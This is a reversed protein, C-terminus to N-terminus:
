WYNTIRNSSWGGNWYPISMAPLGAVSVPVTYIDILYMAM